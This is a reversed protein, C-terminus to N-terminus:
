RQKKLGFPYYTKYVRQSKDGTKLVSPLLHLQNQANESEVVFANYIDQDSVNCESYDLFWQAKDLRADVFASSKIILESQRKVKPEFVSTHTNLKVSYIKTNLNKTESAEPISEKTEMKKITTKVSRRGTAKKKASREKTPTPISIESCIIDELRDEEDNKINSHRRIYENKMLRDIADESRPVHADDYLSSSKRSSALSQTSIDDSLRNLATSTFIEDDKSSKTVDLLFGLSDTKLKYYLDLDEKLKNFAFSAVENYFDFDKIDLNKLLQEYREFSAKYQSNLSKSWATMEENKKWFERLINILSLFAVSQKTEFKGMSIVRDPEGKEVFYVVNGLEEDHISSNSIKNHLSKLERILHSYENYTGIKNVPASTLGWKNFFRYCVGPTLCTVNSSKNEVISNFILVPKEYKLLSDFLSNNIYSACLTKGNISKQFTIKDKINENFFKLWYEAIM